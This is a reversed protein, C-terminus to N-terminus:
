ERRYEVEDTFQRILHIGLGGIKRESLPVALIPESVTLVNFPAGSDEIEIVFRERDDLLCRLVVDGVAEPYAYKFINVLAEEVALRILGIKQDDYAQEKASGVVSDIFQQLHNRTAPFNVQSLITM